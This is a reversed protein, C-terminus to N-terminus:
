RLLQSLVFAIGPVVIAAVPQWAWRASMTAAGPGPPVAEPPVSGPPAGGPLGAGPRSGNLTGAGPGAGNLSGAGPRTGNLSARGPGALGPGATDSAAASRAGARESLGALERAIVETQTMKVLERAPGPLREFAAPRSRRGVEMQRGHLQARARARRGSSLAWSYITKDKRGAGRVGRVELSDALFIGSVAGWPVAYSRFPNRVVIGDAQAIVRPWLTCAFVLGTVTLAGLAFRLSFLHGGGQILLDTLGLALLGLWAWWIAVPGALRYVRRGDPRVKGASSVQGAQDNPASV